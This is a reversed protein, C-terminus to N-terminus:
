FNCVRLPFKTVLIFDKVIFTADVWRPQKVLHSALDM